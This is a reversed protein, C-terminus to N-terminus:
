PSRGGDPTRHMVRLFVEQNLIVLAGAALFWVGKSQFETSIFISGITASAFLGLARLRPRRWGRLAFSIVVAALLLGGPLGNEALVKVWAAHAERGRAVAEFDPIDGADGMKRWAPIFGGTGVGVVPHTEFIRWGGVALSWRHSTRNTLDRSSDFLRAVRSLAHAELDGFQTAVGFILLAGVLLLGIRRHLGPTVALLYALVCCAALMSGRSGSLFIWGTNIAALAALALAGRRRLLASPYGFAIAFLATLSSLSWANPDIRGAPEVGAYFALGILAGLVGTVIGLWFWVEPEDAARAFYVLLGFVGLMGLLDQMGRALDPTRLLGLALLVALAQLLRLQSNRFRLLFPLGLASVVLLLYNFTNWRLWGGNMLYVRTMSDVTCLVAVAYLGLVPRRLGVLAAIIAGATIVTLAPRLGLVLAALCTPVLVVLTVVAWRQALPPAVAVQRARVQIGAVGAHRQPASAARWGALPPPQVSEAM